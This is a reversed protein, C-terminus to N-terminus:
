ARADHREHFSGESSQRELGFPACLLLPCLLLLGVLLISVLPAGLVIAAVLGVAALGMLGCAVLRGAPVSRRGRVLRHWGRELRVVEENM